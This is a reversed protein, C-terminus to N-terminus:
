SVGGAYSPEDECIWCECDAGHIHVGNIKPPEKKPTRNVSRETTKHETRHEPRLPAVPAPDRRVEQRSPAETPYVYLYDRDASEREFRFPSLPDRVARTLDETKGGRKIWRQRLDQFRVGSVGALEDALFTSATTGVKQREAEVRERAWRPRHRALTKEVREKGKLPPEEDARTPNRKEGRYKRQQEEYRKEQIRADEIEQDRLRVDELAERWDDALTVTEAGITAIGERELPALIRRRFDRVRGRRAGFHEHLEEVTASGGAELTHRIIEGRRKGLRAVYFYDVMCRRSGKWEWTFVTKPHRLEPVEDSPARTLYVGRDYAANSLPSFREGEQGAKREAGTGKGYQKGLARGGQSPTLLLYAGPKDKAQGWNVRRLRGLAEMRDIANKAARLSVQAGTAINRLSRIVFVGEDKVKGSQEAAATLDRAVARESCEGIKRAPMTRWEAWLEGMAERLGGDRRLREAGVDAPEYPRAMLLLEAVTGGGALYDDVGTKPAARAM